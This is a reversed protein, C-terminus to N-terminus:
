ELIITDKKRAPLFVATYKRNDKIFTLKNQQEPFYDMLSDFRIDLTKNLVVNGAVLYVSLLGNKSIEFGLCDFVLVQGNTIVQFGANVERAVIALAAADQTLFELDKLVYGKSLLYTEFDHASLVVTTELTQNLANYQMEAFGFYYTHARAALSFAITVLLLFWTKM